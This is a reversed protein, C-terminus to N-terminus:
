PAAPRLVEAIQAVLRPMASEIMALVRAFEAPSGGYPDPIDAGDLDAVEGFLRIRSSGGPITRSLSKLTNFNSNDMALVLDREGLLSPEVQRARHAEGDYGGRGLEVRAPLHMQAGVHWDGTGASDVAVAEDLGAEALRARAVVEAMPSRCINGLCVFCVRYPGDPTRPAPLSM